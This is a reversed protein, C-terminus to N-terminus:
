SNKEKITQYPHPLAQRTMHKVKKSKSAILQPTPWGLLFLDQM